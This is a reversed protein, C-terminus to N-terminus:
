LFKLYACAHYIGHEDSKSTIYDAVQKVEELADGMAVGCGCEKLMDVDNLADGFSVVDMMEIGIKECLHAVGSAKSSCYPYIDYYNEMFCEFRYDAYKKRYYALNKDEIFAVGSVPLAQLHQSAKVRDDRLLEIRGLCKGVMEQMRRYGHYVYFNYKFHFLLADDLEVMDKCLAEVVAESIEEKFLEEGASDMIYTGNSCIFYDFKIAELLSPELAFSPRGSAIAIKIGKKQLQQLAEVTSDLLVRKEKSVLTGDIDFVALKIM